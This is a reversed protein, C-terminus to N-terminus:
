ERSKLTGRLRRARKAMAPVPKPILAQKPKLCCELEGFPAEASAFITFIVGLVAHCFMTCLKRM